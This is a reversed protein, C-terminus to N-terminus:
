STVAGNRVKPALVIIKGSLNTTTTVCVNIELNVLQPCTILCENTINERFCLILNELSVLASFFEFEPFLVGDLKLTLLAQFDWIIQPLICNELHLTTLAPLSISDPLHFGELVLTRLCPLSALYSEPLIVWDNPQSALHLTTLAPVYWCDTELFECKISRLTFKQLSTSALCSLTSADLGYDSDSFDFNLERTKHLKASSFFTCVLHFKPDRFAINLKLVHSQRNRHNFFNSIFDTRATTSLM